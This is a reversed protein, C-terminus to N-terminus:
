TYPLAASTEIAEKASLIVDDGPTVITLYGPTPLAPTQGLKRFSPEQQAADTVYRDCVAMADHDSKGDLHRPWPQSRTEIVQSESYWVRETTEASAVPTPLAKGPQQKKRDEEQCRLRERRTHRPRIVAPDVLDQGRYAQDPDDMKLGTPRTVPPYAHLFLPQGDEPRFKGVKEIEFTNKHQIFGPQAEYTSSKGGTTDM